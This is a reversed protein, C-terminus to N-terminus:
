GLDSVYCVYMDCLQQQITMNFQCLFLNEKKKGENEDDGWGGGGM